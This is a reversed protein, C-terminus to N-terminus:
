AAWARARLTAVFGRSQDLLKELRGALRVVTEFAVTGQFPLPAPASAQTPEVVPEIVPAANAPGLALHLHELLAEAIVKSADRDARLCHVTLREAVDAPLWVTVAHLTRGEDDLMTSPTAASATVEVVVPASASADPAALADCAVPAPAVPAEASAPAGTVFADAKEPSPPKRLSVAVRKKGM